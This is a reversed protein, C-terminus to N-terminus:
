YKIIDFKYEGYCQENPCEQTDIEECYECNCQHDEIIEYIESYVPSAKHNDCWGAKVGDIIDKEHVHGEWKTATNGCIICLKTKM